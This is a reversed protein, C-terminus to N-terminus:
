CCGGVCDDTGKLAEEEAEKYRAMHYLCAAAYTHYVGEANQQESLEQYIALAKDHLGYHFYSYALWESTKLEKQNSQM